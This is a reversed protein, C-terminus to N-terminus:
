SIFFCNINVTDQALPTVHVPIPQWKLGDDAWTENKNPPLLGALFVEACMITRDYDSSNMLLTDYRYGQSLGMDIYRERFWKGM